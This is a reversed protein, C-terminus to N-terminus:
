MDRINDKCHKYYLLVLPKFKYTDKAFDKIIMRKILGDKYGSNLYNYYDFFINRLEEIQIETAMQYHKVVAAFLYDQLQRIAVPELEKIYERCIQVMYEALILMDKTKEVWDIHATVYFTDVLGIQHTKVRSEKVLFVSM